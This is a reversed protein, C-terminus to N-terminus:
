SSFFRGRGVPQTIISIIIAMQHFNMVTSIIPYKSFITLHIFFILCGVTYFWDPARSAGGLRM